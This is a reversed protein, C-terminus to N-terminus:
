RKKIVRTRYLKVYIDERLGTNGSFLLNNTSPDDFHEIFNICNNKINNINDRPSINFQYKEYNIKDSFLNENFNNFNESKLNTMNSKHFSYDLLRQKLCNCMQSNYNIDRIYGTDKCLECEYFPKLYNIDLNESKLIKEKELKLEDIKKQLSNLSTNKNELILKATNIAYHNLEDEIEKLKPIKIYLNTKRKELDIESKLKKQEYEKLLSNLVENSM